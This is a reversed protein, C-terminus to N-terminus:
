RRASAPEAPREALADTFRVWFSPDIWPEYPVFGRTEFSPCFCRQSVDALIAAMRSFSSNCIALQDARRLIQFDRIHDPLTQAPAGFTAAIPAFERFLPLIRAPEDTAVFLLPDRLTPWIARLWAIYWEEPVLRFFPLHQLDRYDGRRLHVAVLTRQGGRTVDYRWADIAGEQEPLLRFMRRLLPRQRRWCEPLEQFYGWLDINIPPDDRDWLMRDHDEFAGFRLEPFALGQCSTDHVDFFQKGEWDPLAATLGHRLAYLRVYAYQFLQNGFRGNTGLSSMAVHGRISAGLQHMSRIADSALFCHAKGNAFEVSGIGVLGRDFLARQLKFDLDETSHVLDRARLAVVARFPFDEDLPPMLTGLMLDPLVILHDDSTWDSLRHVQRFLDGLAQLSGKPSAGQSITIPERVTITLGTHRDAVLRLLVAEDGAALSVAGDCAESHEAFIHNCGVAIISTVSASQDLFPRLVAALAPSLKQTPCDIARLLLVENAADFDGYFLDTMAVKGFPENANEAYNNPMHALWACHPAKRSAISVPVVVRYVFPAPPNEFTLGMAARERVDWPSVERSRNPDFSRSAVYERALDQDLIFAGCYPNDIGVFAYDGASVFPRNTLKVPAINDTNVHLDRAASWEARLFAPVLRFPRLINRALFFYAFNEFTLREDDEIYVFHTYRGPPAIFEDTILKKHAWTLDYPHALDTEVMLRADHGDVLHATRFLQRVTEQEALETTDTFVVINREKVPFAALTHLVEELYCLRRHVFYFSIAVLLRAEAASRLHQADIM